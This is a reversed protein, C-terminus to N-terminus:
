LELAECLWKAWGVEKVFERPDEEQPFLSLFVLEMMVVMFPVWKREDDVFPTVENYGDL